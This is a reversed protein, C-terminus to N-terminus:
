RCAMWCSALCVARRALLGARRSRCPRRSVRDRGGRPKRGAGGSGLRFIHARTGRGLIRRRTGAGGGLASKLESGPAVRRALHRHYTRQNTARCRLTHSLTENDRGPLATCWGASSSRSCSVRPRCWCRCPSRPGNNMATIVARLGYYRRRSAAAGGPLATSSEYEGLISDGFPTVAAQPSGVAWCNHFIRRRLQRAQEQLSEIQSRSSKWASWFSIATAAFAALLTGSQLILNVRENQIEERLKELELTEKDIAPSATAAAPPPTAQASATLPVAPLRQAALMFVPALLGCSSVVRILWNLGGSIMFQVRFILEAGYRAGRCICRFFGSLSWFISRNNDRGLRTVSASLSIGPRSM